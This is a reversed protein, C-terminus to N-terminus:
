IIWWDDHLYLHEKTRTVATYWWRRMDDYNKFAYMGKDLFLFVKNWEGGQSKHCTVIYGYGARLSNLFPDRLMAQKYESSNPKIGDKRMRRSFDIMLNRNQDMTLNNISNTLSNLAFKIEYERGTELHEITINQFLLGIKMSIEGLEKVKIFDGNALPIIYNNQTVMLIEGKQLIDNNTPFLKQRFLQNLKNCAKNSHAIGICNKPGYQLFYSFYELFLSDISLIVSCNQRNRAPLKVWKSNLPNKGISNRLESAIKLVDNNKDTRMIEVLKATKVRRGLGFLFQSDLAPSNKQHVPPLQAPDGVFIIKNNGIAKLLDPLLDGTGFVAFSSDDDKNESALMSAEDVIYICDDLLKDNPEFVLKM